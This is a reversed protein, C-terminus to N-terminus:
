RRARRKKRAKPATPTPRPPRRSSNLPVSAVLKHSELSHDIQVQVDEADITLHQSVVRVIEARLRDMKGQELGHRDYTLAMKLREKAHPASTDQVTHGLFRALFKVTSEKLWTDPFVSSM